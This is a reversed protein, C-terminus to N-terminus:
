QDLTEHEEKAREDAANAAEAHRPNKCEMNMALWGCGVKSQYATCGCAV